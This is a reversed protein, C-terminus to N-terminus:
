WNVKAAEPHSGSHEQRSGTATETELRNLLDDFEQKLKNHNEKLSNFSELTKSLVVEADHDNKELAAIRAAYDKKDHVQETPQASAAAQSDGFFKNLLRSFINEASQETLPKETEQSPNNEMNKQESVRYQSFITQQENAAKTALSFNATTGISAPSDTIALGVLYAKGTDAFKSIIEMSTYIKQGGDWLEQLAPLVSLQAYLATKSPDKDWTDAKLALVDGYAGGWSPFLFRFHELNIRAGYVNPDYQEAMDKLEQASIERGDVTDGSVGIIRWETIKPQQKAM